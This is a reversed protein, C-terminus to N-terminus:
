PKTVAVMQFCGHVQLITNGCSFLANHSEIEKKKAHSWKDLFVQEFEEDSLTMMKDYNLSNWWVNADDKLYLNM